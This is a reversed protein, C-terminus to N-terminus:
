WASIPRSRPLSRMWCASSQCRFRLSYLRHGWLRGTRLLFVPCVGQGRGDRRCVAPQGAPPLAFPHHSLNGVISPLHGARDPRHRRWAKWLDIMHSQPGGSPYSDGPRDFELFRDNTGEGGMWVNVFTPIPYVEKGARAVANIYTSVHFGTFMEEARPGFVEKWTGPRKNLARVLEEPVPANFLRTAEPSYDRVSGLLGSENEVQMLIVTQDKGDIEKLHKVLERYARRDAELTARGHPSLVRIPRGGYDLVRPFRKTDTKIWAPVYAM